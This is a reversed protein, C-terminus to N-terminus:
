LNRHQKPWRTCSRKCSTHIILICSICTTVLFSIVRSAAFQLTFVSKDSNHISLNRAGSFTHLHPLADLRTCGDLQGLRGLHLERLEPLMSGATQLDSVAITRGSWLDNRLDLLRILPFGNTTRAFIKSVVAMPRVFEDHVDNLLLGQPLCLEELTTMKGLLERLQELRTYLPVNELGFHKLQPALQHLQKLVQIGIKPGSLTLTQLNPLKTLLKKVENVSGAGEQTSMRFARVATSNSGLWTIFENQARVVSFSWDLSVESHRGKVLDYKILDARVGKVIGVCDEWLQASSKFRRWTKCVQTVCESRQRLSLQQLVTAILGESLDDFRGTGQHWIGSDSADAVQTPAMLRFVPALERELRDRTLAGSELQERLLQELSVRSCRALLVDVERCQKKATM